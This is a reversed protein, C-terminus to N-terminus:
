ILVPKGRHANFRRLSAVFADSSLDSVLELHAAKVSLSVFVCVYAKIVTPKHVFGHKIYVPGAYDVGVRNFVSNSMVTVYLSSLIKHSITLPPYM